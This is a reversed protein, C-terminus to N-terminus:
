VCWGITVTQMLTNKVLSHSHEIKSAQRLQTAEVSIVEKAVDIHRGKVENAVHRKEIVFQAPKLSQKTDSSSASRHALIGRCVVCRHSLDSECSTWYAILQGLYKGILDSEVPLM